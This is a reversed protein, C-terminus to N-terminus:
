PEARLRATPGKFRSLMGSCVLPVLCPALPPQPDRCLTRRVTTDRPCPSNCLRLPSCAPRIYCNGVAHLQATGASCATHEAHAGSVSPVLLCVIGSHRAHLSLWCRSFGVVALVQRELRTQGMMVLDRVARCPTKSRHHNPAHQVVLMGPCAQSKRGPLGLFHQPGGSCLNCPETLSLIASASHLPPASFSLRPGKPCRAM